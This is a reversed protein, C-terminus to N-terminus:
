ANAPAAELKHVMRNALQLHNIAHSLADMALQKQYDVDSIPWEPLRELFEEFQMPDTLITRNGEVGALIYDIGGADSSVGPSKDNDPKRLNVYAVEIPLLGQTRLQEPDKRFHPLLLEKVYGRGERSDPDGEYWLNMNAWVFDTTEIVALGSERLALATGSSSLLTFGAEHLGAGLEVIGEKSAGTLLAAREQSM